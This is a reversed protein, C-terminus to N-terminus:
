IKRRVKEKSNSSFYILTVVSCWLHCSISKAWPVLYLSQWIGFGEEPAVLKGAYRLPYMICSVPYQNCSVPYPICSLTYLICSVPYLIYSVLNDVM